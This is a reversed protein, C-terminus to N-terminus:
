SITDTSDDSDFMYVDDDSDDNTSNWGETASTSESDTTEVTMNVAEGMDQHDAPIAFRANAYDDSGGMTFSESAISKDDAIVQDQRYVTSISDHVNISAGTTSGWVRLQDMDEVMSGTISSPASPITHGTHYAPGPGNPGMETSPIPDEFVGGTGDDCGGAWLPLFKLENDTLTLLLHRTINLPPEIDHRLWSLTIPRLGKKVGAELADLSVMPNSLPRGVGMTPFLEDPFISAWLSRKSERPVCTLFFRVANTTDDLLTRYTRQKYGSLTCRSNRYRRGDLLVGLDNYPAACLLMQVSNFDQMIITAKEFDKPEVYTLRDQDISIYTEHNYTPPTTMVDDWMHGVEFYLAKMLLRLSNLASQSLPSTEKELMQELWRLKKWEEIDWFDFLRPNRMMANIDSVREVLAQAAHQVLNDLEDPLDGLKRGFITTTQAVHPNPKTDAALKLALENVLIRFANETIQPIQLSFAIQLAEEPLVEVFTINQGHMIWQTVRDRLISGCDFINGLKVLTWLRTASDLIVGKGEILMLLRVIGNRHRIPCYDPIHRYPPTEYHENENRAKMQLAFEPKIPLSPKQQGNETPNTLDLPSEPNDKTPSTSDHQEKDDASAKPLRNCMCVDDHGCVLWPDVDNMLSSSWWKIIGPTLSLETMQFVLDDGESPPTLDLLYKIGEPMKNVMKRRRQIRFQYTPGLMDAFKSSGTELLKSSHVRFQQSKYIIGHCDTHNLVGKHHVPYDIFVLTDGQSLEFSVSHLRYLEFNRTEDIEKQPMLM